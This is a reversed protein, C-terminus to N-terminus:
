AVAPLQWSAHVGGGGLRRWLRVQEGPTRYRAEAATLSNYSEQVRAMTSEEAALVASPKLAELESVGPVLPCTTTYTEALLWGALDASTCTLVVQSSSSSTADLQLPM